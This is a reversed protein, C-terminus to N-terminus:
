QVQAAFGTLLLFYFKVLYLNYQSIHVIKWISHFHRGSLHLQHIKFYAIAADRASNRVDSTEVVKRRVRGARCFLWRGIYIKHFVQRFTQWVLSATLDLKSTPLPRGLAKLALRWQNAAASYDGQFLLYFLFIILM